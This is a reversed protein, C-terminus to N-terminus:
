FVRLRVWVCTVACLKQRKKLLSQVSVTVQRILGTSVIPLRTQENRPNLPMWHRPMYYVMMQCASARWTMSV